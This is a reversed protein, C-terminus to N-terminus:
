STDELGENKGFFYMKHPILLVDDQATFEKIIEKEIYHFFMPVDSQDRDRSLKKTICIPCNETRIPFREPENLKLRFSKSGKVPKVRLYVPFAHRPVNSDLAECHTQLIPLRLKDIYGADHWPRSENLRRADYTANSLNAIYRKDRVQFILHTKLNDAEM